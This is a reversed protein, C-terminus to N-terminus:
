FETIVQSDNATRNEAPSKNKVYSSSEIELCRKKASEENHSANRSREGCNVIQTSINPEM